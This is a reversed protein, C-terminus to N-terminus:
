CIFTLLVRHQFEVRYFFDKVKGIPHHDSKLVTNIFEQVRYDFYRACTVPDQQILKTKQSWSLREAQYDTITKGENLEVLSKILDIWRTDASSFSGFWTPLGLQRIMAFVEKKKAELYPPSNRLTRFIHYGENLRALNKLCM